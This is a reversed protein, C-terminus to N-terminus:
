KLHWQKGEFKYKSRDSPVPPYSRFDQSKLEIPGSRYIRKQDFLSGRFDMLEIFQSNSSEKIKEMKLNFMLSSTPESFGILEFSSIQEFMDLGSTQESTNFNEQRFNELPTLFILLYDRKSDVDLTSVSVQYNLIWKHEPVIDLSEITVPKIYSRNPRPIRAVIGQSFWFAFIGAAFALPFGALRSLSKM